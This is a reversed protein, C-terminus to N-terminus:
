YFKVNLRQGCSMNQKRDAQDGVRLSRNPDSRDFDKMPTKFKAPEGKCSLAGLSETINLGEVRDSKWSLIVRCGVSVSVTPEEGCRQGHRWSKDQLHNGWM